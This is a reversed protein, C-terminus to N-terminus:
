SGSARRQVGTVRSAKADAAVVATDALRGAQLQRTRAALWNPLHACVFPLLASAAARCNPLELAVSNRRADREVRRSGSRATQGAKYIRSPAPTMLFCRIHTQM